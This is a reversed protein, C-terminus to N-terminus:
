PADPERRERLARYLARRAARAVSGPLPDHPPPWARLEDLLAAAAARSPEDATEVLWQATEIASALRAGPDRSSRGDLCIAALAGLQPLALPPWTPPSAFPASLFRQSLPRADELLAALRAAARDVVHAARPDTVEPALEVLIVARENTHRILRARPEGDSEIRVTEGSLYADLATRRGVSREAVIWGVDDGSREAPTGMAWRQSHFFTSGRGLREVMWDLLTRAAALVDVGHSPYRDTRGGGVAMARAADIRPYASPPPEDDPTPAANETRAGSTPAVPMPRLTARASARVREPVDTEAIPWADLAALLAEIRRRSGPDVVRELMASAAVIADARV